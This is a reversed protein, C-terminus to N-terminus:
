PTPELAARAANECRDWGVGYLDGYHERIYRWGSLMDSLAARLREIEANKEAVTDARIYEIDHPSAPELPKSRVSVFQGMRHVYLREPPEPAPQKTVDVM